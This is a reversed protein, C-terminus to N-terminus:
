YEEDDDDDNRSGQGAYNRMASLAEKYLEEVRAQSELQEAKAKLVKNESEIKEKELRERSSGLKLYHNIVQSSASGDKLQQEALDVALSIMQKERNDPTLAPRSPKVRSETISEKKKGM